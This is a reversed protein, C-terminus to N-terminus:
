RALLEDLKPSGETVYECVVTDDHLLVAARHEENWTWLFEIAAFSIGNREKEFVHIQSLQMQRCVADVGLLGRKDIEADFEPENFTILNERARDKAETVLKALHVEITPVISSRRALFQEWAAVQGLSPGTGTNDEFSLTPEISYGEGMECFTGEYLYLQKVRWPFINKSL